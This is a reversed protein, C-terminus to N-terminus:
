NPFDFYTDPYPEGNLSFYWWEQTYPVFGEARMLSQLLARNARQQPTVERSKPWSIPDFFTLGPGWTSNMSRGTVTATCSPSM